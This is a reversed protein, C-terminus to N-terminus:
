NPSLPVRTEEFQCKRELEKGHGVKGVAPSDEVTLHEDAQPYDDKGHEACIRDTFDAEAM